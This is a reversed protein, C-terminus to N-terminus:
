AQERGLPWPSWSIGLSRWGPNIRIGVAKVLQRSLLSRLLQPLPSSPPPRIVHAAAQQGGKCAGEFACARFTYAHVLTHAHTHAHTRTHSTAALTHSSILHAAAQKEGTRAGTCVSHDLRTVSNLAKLRCRSCCTRCLEVGDFKTEMSLSVWDLTVSESTPQLSSPYPEPLLLQQPLHKLGQGLCLRMLPRTGAMRTQQRGGRGRRWSMLLQPPRCRMVGFSSLSASRSCIIAVSRFKSQTSSYGMCTAWADIYLM